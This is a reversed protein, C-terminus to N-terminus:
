SIPEQVPAARHLLLRLRVTTRPNVRRHQSPRIGAVWILEGDAFVLPVRGREERPIGADALFRSLRRSGPAGLPFFRDGPTPYRLRLDGKLGAADLEVHIPSRPVDSTPDGEILEASIARGDPLDASGPIGLRIGEPPLSLPASPNFPLSPQHLAGLPMSNNLLAHHDSPPLLHLTSSRLQLIWGKPLAFRKCRGRELSALVDDIHERRPGVGTGESLLRWLARRRLPRPIALLPGRRITGGVHATDASRLAAAHLPPDWHLHATHSALDSELGEVAQSFARLNRLGGEGCAAEVTPLLGHRVRNRTFRQDKNSSDERGPIGQRTLIQHVEERRMDILPRVVVLDRAGLSLRVKPKLGALGELATGRLWRMLLTELHDDAHHGTLVCKASLRAAEEALVGYRATRARAELGSPDPDLHVRRRIFPIGRDACLKACFSADKDSEAARLGHDVHVATIQPRPRARHALELLLVSDAGGSLAVLVPDEPDLGVRHALRAYRSEWTPQTATDTERAHDPTMQEHCASLASGM